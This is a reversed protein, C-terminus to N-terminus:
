KYGDLKLFTDDASTKLTPSGLGGIKLAADLKHGFKLSTDVKHGALAGLSLGGQVSKLQDPGLEEEPLDNIDIDTM